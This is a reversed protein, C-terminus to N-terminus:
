IIKFFNSRKLNICLALQKTVGLELKTSNLNIQHINKECTGKHSNIQYLSTEQEILSQQHQASRFLKVYWSELILFLPYKIYRIYKYQTHIQQFTLFLVFLVLLVAHWQNQPSKCSIHFFDAAYPVSILNNKFFILFFAQISQAM